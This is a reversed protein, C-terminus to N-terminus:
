AFVAPQWWGQGARNAPKNDSDVEKGKPSDPGPNLDDVSNQGPQAESSQAVDASEHSHESRPEPTPFSAITAAFEDGNADQFPAEDEDKTKKAGDEDKTKRAGDTPEISETLNAPEIPDRAVAGEEAEDKAKKEEAAALAAKEQRKKEQEIKRQEQREWNEKRAKEDALKRRRDVEEAGGTKKLKSLGVFQEVELQFDGRKRNQLEKQRAKEAREIAEVRDQHNVKLGRVEDLMGEKAERPDVDTDFALLKPNPRLAAPGVGTPQRQAAQLNQQRMAEEVLQFIGTSEKLDMSLDILVEEQHTLDQKESMILELEQEWIKTWVPKEQKVVEKLRSLEKSVASLEKGIDELQRPLPRVGRTVVDRRLEEITDAVDDYRNLIAESDAALQKKGAVIHARGADGTYASVTADAAAQKVNEAKAKVDNMAATFDATMSSCTQRLVAIDRRMNQVEQIHAGSPPPTPVRSKDDHPLVPTRPPRSAPVASIRAMEKSAELQRDSFRQMLSSQGDLQHKLTDLTKQLGGLGHDFHRKVEDLPEVNLVLVVRDKVDSLDELEHRVGSIPDQIYIEPLDVGDNHTHWAFKDIFALQLRALTLQEDNNPLVFKKIKTKYQLFLTLEKPRPPSSDLDTLHSVPPTASAAKRHITNPTSAAEYQVSESYTPLATAQENSPTYLQYSDAPSKISASLAATDDDDADATPSKSIFVDPPKTATSAAGQSSESRPPLANRHRTSAREADSRGGAEEREEEVIREPPRVAGSRSPSIEAHKRMSRTRHASGRSQVAKMSERYDEHGRHAGRGHPPPMVPAGNPSAGFQKSIQYASFRRSARRELEGGAAPSHVPLTQLASSSLSSESESPAMLPVERRFGRSTPPVAPAPTALVAAIVSASPTPTPERERRSDATPASPAPAPLTTTTTSTPTPEREHGSDTTPAPAPRSSSSYAPPQPANERPPRNHLKNQKRKLGHLLNVIIDRIRPLYNDLATPSAAQSLTDELIHRLLDPVNGLDATEVGISNFARCALNFEYGLRVYVDSVDEERALGRSWQTLTELLQKTAVLLNTVSQEIQSIRRDPKVSGRSRASASSTRPQASAAAGAGPNTVTGAAASMATISTTTPPPPQTPPASALPISAMTETPDPYSRQRQQSQM